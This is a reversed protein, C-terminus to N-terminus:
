RLCSIEFLFHGLDVNDPYDFIGPIQTEGFRVLPLNGVPHRGVVTQILEQRQALDKQVRTVDSYEEYYLTGVPSSLREREPKLILYDNSIIESQNLLEISLYYDYNNKYKHHNRLAAFLKTEELFRSFDYDRPVYIKTVNRCGLGFYDFVDRGLGSLDEMSESGDLIAVSTRNKRLVSPYGGFYKEFYRNTNDSGTAIVAEFDRLQDVIQIRSPLLPDVKKMIDLMAPFVYPDKSSLKIQGRHGSLYVTLFDHFGVAPINGAFILGVVKRFERGVPFRYQEMWKRINEEELLTGAISDLSKWYNEKTFWANHFSTRHINAGLLDDRHMIREKLYQLAKIEIREMENKRKPEIRLM